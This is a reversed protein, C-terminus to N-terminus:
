QEKTEDKAPTSDPDTSAAEDQSAPAALKALRTQDELGELTTTETLQVKSGGYACGSSGGAYASGAAMMAGIVLSLWLAKNM